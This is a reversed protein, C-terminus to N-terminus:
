YKINRDKIRSIKIHKHLDNSFPSAELIEGILYGNHYAFYRKEIYHVTTGTESYWGGGLCEKERYSKNQSVTEVECELGSWKFVTRDENYFGDQLVYYHAM